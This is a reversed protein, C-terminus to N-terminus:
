LNALLDQLIKIESEQTLKLNNALTTVQDNKTIKLIEDSLQMIGKHHLILGTVFDKDVNDTKSSLISEHTKTLITKTATNFNEIVEPSWEAKTNQLELSLAKVAELESQERSALQEALDKVVANQSNALVFKASEITTEQFPILNAVFNYDLNNSLAMPLVENTTTDTATAELTTEKANLGMFEKVASMLSNSPANDQAKPLDEATATGAYIFASLLVAAIATRKMIIEKTPNM